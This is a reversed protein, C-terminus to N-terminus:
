RMAAIQRLRRGICLWPTEMVLNLRCVAGGVRWIVVVV